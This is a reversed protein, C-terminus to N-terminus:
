ATRGSSKAFTMRLVNHGNLRQYTVADSQTRILLVGLGGVPREMVDLTIDPDPLSLMDFPAGEDSIELVFDDGSRSCAIEVNGAGNPYAHSCINVFAEELVLLVRSLKESSLGAQSAYAGVFANVDDLQIVQAPFSKKERNM